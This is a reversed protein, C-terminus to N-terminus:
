VCILFLPIVKCSSVEEARVLFLFLLFFFVWYL